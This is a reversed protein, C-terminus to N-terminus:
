RRKTKLDEEDGTEGEGRKKETGKRDEGRERRGAMGVGRGGEWNSVIEEKKEAEREM